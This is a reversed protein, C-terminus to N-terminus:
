KGAVITALRAKTGFRKEPKFATKVTWQSAAVTNWNTVWPIHRPAATGRQAQSGSMADVAIGNGKRAFLKDRRVMQQYICNKLNSIIQIIKPWNGGFKLFNVNERSKRTRDGMGSAGEQVGYWSSCHLYHSPLSAKSPSWQRNSASLPRLFTQPIGQFWVCKKKTGFVNKEGWVTKAAGRGPAWFYESPRFFRSQRLTLTINLSTSIIRIEWIARTVCGPHGNCARNVCENV